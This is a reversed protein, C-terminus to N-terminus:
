GFLGWRSSEKLRGLVVPKSYFSRFGLDIVAWVVVCDDEAEVEIQITLRRGAKQWADRDVTARHRVPVSMPDDDPGPEHPCVIVLCQDTFRPEPWTWRVHYKDSALKAGALSKRGAAPGLGLKQPPLIESIVWDTLLQEHAAFRQPNNRIISADFLEGLASRRGECLATELAQTRDNRQRIEEAETALEKPLPHDALCPEALLRVVEEENSEDIAAQLDELTQQRDVIQQYAARWRDAERCEGLLNPQWIELLKQDFRDPPLDRPIEHLQKLIPARRKALEIRPMWGLPVLRECKADCVARWAAVIPAEATPNDILKELRTIATMRQRAQDVRARATYTYGQPLRSAAEVIAREGALTIKQSVKQILQGLRDLVKVRSRAEAFRHQQQQAPGYGAFLKENWAALTQRDNAESVKSELRCFARWAQERSVHEYAQQILPKLRAPADRFQGRRNLVAVAAHFQKAVLLQEIKAYSDTLESLPAVQDMPMRSFALLKETLERVEQLPSRMLDRCLASQGPSQIDETQFLLKDNESQEVYTNWLTPQVALARLSVYIMLASFNDLNTSLLTREDREPHQYPAVGIELNRRGVLSPVCMCDYDVLKVQGKNTVMVNNHQLDGHTVSARALEDVVRVWLDAARGIARGNGEMCRERVWEFLTCGEVWDMVILPYWKGDGASRISDDRYEFDCLCKLRRGQLYASIQEYRERREPSETTFVRVAFPESTDAAIGKYVVAFSGAWPRPQNMANKEVSCHQLRPDRFAVGPNQLMASFHSALPWSM